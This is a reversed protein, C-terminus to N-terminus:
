ATATVNKDVIVVLSDKVALQGDFLGYCKIVQDDTDNDEYRKITFDLNTNLIYDSPNVLFAAIEGTVNANHGVPMYNNLIVRRGLLTREPAGGIGYSVRAVPQGASDVMGAFEMFKKKSMFWVAGNEYELPLAGEADTLTKYNIGKGAAINVKQAVALNESHLIGKPTNAAEGKIIATELAILMAESVQNVFTTEFIDLSVVSVELSMNIAVRLKHYAFVIQGTTKQHAQTTGREQVWEATPKMASTPIALGGKYNTRTVLPLIMGSAEIKEIIRQLVTTPIVSTILDTTTNGAVNRFEKPMKAGSVIHNMFSKRYEISNTIDEAAVEGIKNERVLPAINSIKSSDKLANFNALAKASNEFDNDLKEIDAMKAQGEELKGENILAEAETYLGNRLELYKEKNM